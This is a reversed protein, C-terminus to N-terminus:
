RCRQQQQHQQWLLQQRLVGAPDGGAGSGFAAAQPRLKERVFFEREVEQYDLFEGLPDSGHGQADGGGEGQEYVPVLFTVSVREKRPQFLKM